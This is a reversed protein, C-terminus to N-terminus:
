KEFVSFCGVVDRTDVYVKGNKEFAPLSTDAAAEKVYELDCGSYTAAVVPFHHDEEPKVGFEAVYSERDVLRVTDLNHGTDTVPEMAAYLKSITEEATKFIDQDKCYFTLESVRKAGNVHAYKTPNDVILEKTLQTTVGFLIDTFPELGIIFFTQYRGTGQVAGYKVRQSSPDNVPGVGPIGAALLANRATNPDKGKNSMRFSHIRPMKGVEISNGQWVAPEGEKRYCIEALTNDFIFHTSRDVSTDGTVFGLGKMIAAAEMRKPTAFSFHDICFKLTKEM